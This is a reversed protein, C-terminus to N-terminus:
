RVAKTGLSDGTTAHGLGFARGAESLRHEVHDRVEAGTLIDVRGPRVFAKGAVDCIRGAVFAPEDGAAPLPVHSVRAWM